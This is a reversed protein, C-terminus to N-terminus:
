SLIRDKQEQNGCADIVNNGIGNHNAVIVGISADRKCLEYAMCGSELHSFGPGGYEGITM